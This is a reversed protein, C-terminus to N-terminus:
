AEFITGQHADILIEETKGELFVPLYVLEYQINNEQDVSKKYHLNMKLNNACFRKAEDESVKPFVNIHALEKETVTPACFKNIMGTYKGVGIYAIQNQVEISDHVRNFYYMYNPEHKENTKEDSDINLDIKDFLEDADPYITFLFDLARDYAKKNTLASTVEESLIEGDCIQVIQATHKNIKFKIVNSQSDDMNYNLQGLEKKSNKSWLEIRCDKKNKKGIKSYDGDLGLIRFINKSSTAYPELSKLNCKILKLKPEEGSAPVYNIEENLRYILKYHNLSAPKSIELDLNLKKLYHSKAEESTIIRKPTILEYDEEKRNFSLINGALDLTLEVGTGPLFLNYKSNKDEYNVRYNSAYTFVSAVKLNKNQVFTNLFANANEIIEKENLPHKIHKLIEGTYSFFTLEGTKTFKLCGINNNRENFINYYIFNGKEKENLKIKCPEPIHKEILRLTEKM